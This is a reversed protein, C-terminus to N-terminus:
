VGRRSMASNALGQYRLAWLEKSEDDIDRLYTWLEALKPHHSYEGTAEIESVICAVFLLASLVSSSEGYGPNWQEEPTDVLMAVGLTPLRGHAQSSQESYHFEYLEKLVARRSGSVFPSIHRSPRGYLMRGPTPWEARILNPNAEAETSVGLSKGIIALGRRYVDLYEAWKADSAFRGSLFRFRLAYNKWAELALIRTRDAPAETLALVSSLIEFLARGLVNAQLMLPKPRKEALLLCISAYTQAGAVLFGRLMVWADTPQLRGSATDRRVHEKYYEVVLNFADNFLKHPVAPLDQKWKPLEEM